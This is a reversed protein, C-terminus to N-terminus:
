CVDGCGTPFINVIKFRCIKWVFMALCLMALLNHYVIVIADGRFQAIM